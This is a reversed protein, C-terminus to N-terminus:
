MRRERVVRVCSWKRCGLPVMRLGQWDILFAMGEGVRLVAIMDALLTLVVMTDFLGSVPFVSSPRPLDRGRRCEEWRWM